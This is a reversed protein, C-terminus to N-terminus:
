AHEREKKLRTLFKKHLEIERLGSNDEGYHATLEAKLRLGEESDSLDQAALAQYRRLKDIIPLPATRETGFILALVEQSEAGCTQDTPIIVEDDNIIRVCEKPVSSVVQPSHTTVIFQIKPFARRLGGLIRQQWAPHLFMDVEDILVVGSTQEVAQEDLFPNLKACRVAIDVVISMISKVGDSLSGIPLAIHKKSDVLAIEDYSFNYHPREWEVWDLAASIAMKVGSLLATIKKGTATKIQANQLTALEAEKFWSKALQYDTNAILCSYYGSYRSKRLTKQENAKQTTWLRNTGYYSIVPLPTDEPPPTYPEPKHDRGCRVFLIEDGTATTGRIEARFFEAPNKMAFKKERKYYHASKDDVTKAEYIEAIAPYRSEMTLDAEEVKRVDGDEIDPILGHEEFNHVYVSLAAAIGDLVATKGHGNKAVLVILDSNLDIELAEFRRFNTLKLKEIKM